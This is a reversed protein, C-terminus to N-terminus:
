GQKWYDRNQWVGDVRHEHSYNSQLMVVIYHGNICNWLMIWELSIWKWTYIECYNENWPCGNEHLYKLCELHGNFSACEFSKENWPCGNEHHYKLVNLCGNWSAIECTNENSPCGNELLYKL